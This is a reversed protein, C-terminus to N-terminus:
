DNERKREEELKKSILDQPFDKGPAFRKVLKLIGVTGGVACGMILAVMGIQQLQGVLFSM